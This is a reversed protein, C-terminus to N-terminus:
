STRTLRVDTPAAIKCRSVVRGRLRIQATGTVTAVAVDRTTFRGTVRWRFKGTRGRVGGLNRSTGTLRATFRGDRVRVRPRSRINSVWVESLGGGTCRGNFGMRVTLKSGARSRTAISMTQPRPFQISGSLDAARPATEGAAFASGAGALVFPAVFMAALRFSM